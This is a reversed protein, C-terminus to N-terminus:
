SFDFYKQDIVKKVRSDRSWSEVVGSDIKGLAVCGIYNGAKVDNFGRLKHLKWRKDQPIKM